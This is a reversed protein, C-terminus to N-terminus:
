IFSPSCRCMLFPKPVQINNIKMLRKIKNNKAKININKYPGGCFCRLLNDKFYFSIFM